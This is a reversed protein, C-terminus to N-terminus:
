SCPRCDGCGRSARRPPAYRPTPPWGSACSPTGTRVTRRRGSRARVYAPLPALAAVIMAAVGVAPSAGVVSVVVSAVLLGGGVVLLWRRYARRQEALVPDHVHGPPIRVGFQLTPRTLAPLSWALLLVVASGATRALAVGVSM